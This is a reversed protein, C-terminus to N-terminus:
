GVSYNVSHRRASLYLLLRSGIRLGCFSYCCLQLIFALANLDEFIVLNKTEQDKVSRGLNTDM